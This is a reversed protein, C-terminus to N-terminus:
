RDLAPSPPPGEPAPLGLAPDTLGLAPDTLGPGPDILAPGPDPLGLAPDRSLGVLATYALTAVFAQVFLAASAHLTLRPHFATNLVPSSTGGSLLRGTVMALVSGALSGAALVGIMAPGRSRRLTWAFLGFLLGAALTLVVFRGDAAVQSESEDPIVLSGGAGNSLLYSVSSPAWLRWLVGILVGAVLQAAVLWAAPRLWPRSARRARAPAPVLDTSTM